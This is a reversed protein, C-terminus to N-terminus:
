INQHAQVAMENLEQYQRDLSDFSRDALPKTLQELLLAKYEELLAIYRYTYHELQVRAHGQTLREPMELKGECNVMLQSLVITEEVGALAQNLREDALPSASQRMMVPDAQRLARGLDYM